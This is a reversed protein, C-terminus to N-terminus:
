NSSIPPVALSTLPPPGDMNANKKDNTFVILLYRTDSVQLYDYLSSALESLYRSVIEGPAFVHVRASQDVEELCSVGAIKKKILYDIFSAELNSENKALEDCENASSLALCCAYEPNTLIGHVENVQGNELQLRQNIIVSDRRPNEETLGRGLVGNLFTESGNILHLNIMIETSKMALRGTWVMPYFNFMLRSFETSTPKSSTASTSDNPPFRELEKFLIDRWFKANLCTEDLKVAELSFKYGELLVARKEEDSKKKTVLKRSFKCMNCLLEMSLEGESYRKKLENLGEAYKRQEFLSDVKEFPDM